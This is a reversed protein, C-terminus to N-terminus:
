NLIISSLLNVEFSRQEASSRATESQIVALSVDSDNRISISASGDIRARQVVIVVSSMEDHEAQRVEVSLVVPTSHVSAGTPPPLVFTSTGIENIDVMSRSWMSGGLKFQLNLSLSADAKHWGEASWPNVRVLFRSKYQRIELVEEICNVIVYRPMVYMLRTCSFNGLMPEIRYTLQYARHTESDMVEFSGVAPRNLGIKLEESFIAGRHVGIQVTESEPCFLTLGNGGQVWCNAISSDDFYKEFNLSVLVNQIGPADSATSVVFVSYMSYKKGKGWNGHLVVRENPSFVKAYLSFHIEEADAKFNFLRGICHIRPLYQFGETCVWQPLTERRIDFLLFVIADHGRLTANGDEDVYEEQMSFQMYAKTRMIADDCATSIMTQGRLFAPLISWQQLRDVFVTSGIDATMCCYPRQSDVKLNSVVIPTVRRGISMRRGDDIKGTSHTTRLIELGESTRTWVCIDLGSRDILAAPSYLMVCVSKTDEDVKTKFFIPLCPTGISNYLLLKSEVTATTDICISDSWSLNSAQLALKAGYHTNIHLLRNTEGSDLSGMESYGHSSSCRYRVQFPLWNSIAAYTALVIKLTKDRQMVHVEVFYTATDSSACELDYKTKYEYPLASCMFENSWADPIDAPRIKACKVFQYLLPVHFIGGSSIPGFQVPTPLSRHSMSLMVAYPLRNMFQTGSRVVIVRSGDQLPEISWLLDLPRSHESVDNTTFVKTRIFRRRRVSDMHRRTRRHKPKEICLSNFSTGYEWGDPDIELGEEGRMDIIWDGIWEWGQELTQYHVRTSKGRANSDAPPDMPFFPQRWERMLPDFRQNQYYEVVIPDRYHGIVEHYEPSLQLSYARAETTKLPLQLLPLREMGLTGCFHLNVTKPIRNSRGDLDPKLSLPVADNSNGRAVALVENSLTDILEIDANEGLHNLISIEPATNGFYSHSEAKAFLSYSNLIKELMIGTTTIQMTHSSTLSLAIEETSSELAACLLWRELIPEWTSINPNYYDLSSIMSGSGGLQRLLGGASVTLGSLTVRLFPVSQGYYDNILVMSLEGSNIRFTYATVQALAGSNATVPTLTNNLAREEPDDDTVISLARRTLISQALLVDRLSLKFDIDDIDLGLDNTIVINRELRRRMNLEIGFPNLIQHPQMCTLNEVTYVELKCLKLLLSEKIEIGTDLLSLQRAYNVDIGCRCVIASTMEMTPDDLFILRPNPIRVVTNMALPEVLRMLSSTDDDEPAANLSLFALANAVALDALDLVADLSLFGSIHPINVDCASFTSHLQQFTITVWELENDDSLGDAVPTLSFITKYFFDKSISRKDVVELSRMKVGTQLLDTIIIEASIDNVNVSFATDLTIECDIMGSNRKRLLDLNITDVAVIVRMGYPRDVSGSAEMLPTENSPNGVNVRLSDKSYNDKGLLVLIFPRLNLVTSEDANLALNAFNVIVESAYQLYVPSRVSRIYTYSFKILNRNAAPTWALTRQSMARSSDDIKISNLDVLINTDLQRGFYKVDLARVSLILHDEASNGYELDLAVELIKVRVLMLVRTLDEDEFQSTQSPLTEYRATDTSARDTFTSTTLRSIHLLKALKSSDLVGTLNPKILVDVVMDSSTKDVTQMQVSVDFPRILYLNETRFGYLDRASCPMGANVETLVVDWEMGKLGLHGIVILHGTDLLLYGKDVCSDEPIIIKPAEAEFTLEFGEENMKVRQKRKKFRTIAPKRHMYRVEDMAFVTFFGLIRQIPEKNLTFELPLAEIKVKTKSGDVVYNVDFTSSVVEEEGSPKNRQVKVIKSIIPNVTCQDELCINGISLLAVFRESKVDMNLTMDMSALAIPRQGESILLTASSAIGLRLIFSKASDSVGDDMLKAELAQISVDDPEVTGEIAEGSLWGWWTRNMVVGTRRRLELAERTKERKAIQRFVILAEVPLEEEIEMLDNTDTDPLSFLASDDEEAAREMKLKILRIYRARCEICKRMVEKNLRFGSGRGMTLRLAYQWWGKPDQNPRLIPRREMAIM